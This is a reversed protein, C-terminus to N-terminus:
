HSNTTTRDLAWDFNRSGPLPDHIAPRHSPSLALVHQACLGPSEAAYRDNSSYQRDAIIEGALGFGICQTTLLLIISPVTSLPMKFYLDM